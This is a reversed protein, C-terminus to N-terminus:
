YKSKRWAAKGTELAGEIAEMADELSAASTFLVLKNEKDNLTVSCGEASYAVKMTWPVRPKGEDWWPDCLGGALFPYAEFIWKDPCSWRRDKPDPASLTPRKM